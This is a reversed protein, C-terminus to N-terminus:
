ATRQEVPPADLCRLWLSGHHTDFDEPALPQYGPVVRRLFDERYHRLLPTSMVIEVRPNYCLYAQVLMAETFLMPWRRDFVYAAPDCPVNYPFHIDHVHVLVGPELAPLVELVLHPVEGDVRVVHTSDIFLVDGAALQAFWDAPLDQAERALVEVGPLGRTAESVFPDVVTMAMPRGEAANRAAARAAYWTSLGSGVEVYRAPKYRRLMLYLVLADVRTFGPGRREWKIEDYSPLESYERLYDAAMGELDAMMAPLDFGVGTLRSPRHWRGVHRKLESVPRLPSYYDSTRAVVWGMRNVAGIAARRVAGYGNRLLRM